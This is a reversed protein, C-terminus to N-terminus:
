LEVVSVDGLQYPGGSYVQNVYSVAKRATDRAGIVEMEAKSRDAEVNAKVLYYTVNILVYSGCEYIQVDNSHIIFSNARRCYDKVCEAVEHASPM